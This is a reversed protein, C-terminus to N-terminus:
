RDRERAGSQGQEGALKRYYSETMSKYFASFQDGSGQSLAERIRAPLAGWAAHLEDLRDALPGEQLGPPNLEDRNDGQGAEDQPNQGQQQQGSQPQNPQQGQQQQSSDGSSSSSSSQSSQQQKAQEILIDLKRIIEDQLRQTQAGPAKAVELLDAADSMQQVAQIFMDAVQEGSLARDLEAREPDLAADGEAASKDAPELGLLEDLSPLPAPNTLDDGAPHQAPQEPAPEAPKPKDQDAAAAGALVFAAAFPLLRSPM